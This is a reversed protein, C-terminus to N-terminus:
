KVLMHNKLWELPIKPGADNYVGFPANSFNVRTMDEYYTNRALRMSDRDINDAVVVNKIFPTWFAPIDELCFRYDVGNEDVFGSHKAGTYTVRFVFGFSGRSVYEFTSQSLIRNTQDDLREGDIKSVVGGRM